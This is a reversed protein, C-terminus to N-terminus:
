NIDSDPEDGEPGALLWDRYDPTELAIQWEFLIDACVARIPGSARGPRLAASLLWNEFEGPEPDAAICEELLELKLNLGINDPTTNRPRRKRRGEAVEISSLLWECVAGPRVDKLGPLSNSSTGSDSM